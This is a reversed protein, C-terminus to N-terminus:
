YALPTALLMFANIWNKICRNKTTIKFRPRPLLAFHFM